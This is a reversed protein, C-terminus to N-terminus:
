ARAAGAARALASSARDIHLSREFGDGGSTACAGWAHWLQLSRQCLWAFGADDGVRRGESRCQEAHALATNTLARAEGWLAHEDAQELRRDLAAALTHLGPPPTLPSTM